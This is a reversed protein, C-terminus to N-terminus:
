AIRKEPSLFDQQALLHHRTNASVNAKMQGFGFDLALMDALDGNNKEVILYCGVKISGSSLITGEKLTRFENENM